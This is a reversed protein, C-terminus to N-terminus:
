IQRTLAIVQIYARILAQRTEEDQSSDRATQQILRNMGARLLIKALLRKFTPYHKRYLQLRARWLNVISQPRVQSTSQGGYHIVEASQVCVARWGAQKIRMAWDVEECYLHFQEDFMGTQQIVERRLLFTAGLPHDIEFPTSSAYQQRAYRGNLSSEYLRAPVPFLDIFLQLLGPFAFGSHQFSSDGYVLRAGALGAESALMGDVLARLAGTRVVTDPNLLLVFDPLNPNDPFGITRLAHNNGGAFGLNDGAELIHVPPICNEPFAARLATVTGDTSANDVVWIDGTLGSHALDAHASAVAELVLDRVNWAVIIISLRKDPDASQNMRLFEGQGAM